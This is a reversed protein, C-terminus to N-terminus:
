AAGRESVDFLTKKETPAKDERDRGTKPRNWSGGGAEGVMRWGAAKLSGGSESSLIYTILRTYGMARSARWSAAYLLSCVNKSGDTCLRTVEATWGDDLHRSVPRGVCAVGVIVEGEMAAISFKHGQPPRHHRHNKAIFECAARFTIPKLRLSM